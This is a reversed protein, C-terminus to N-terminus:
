KAAGDEKARGDGSMWWASRFAYRQRAERSLSLRRVDCRVMGIRDRIRVHSTTRRKRYVVYYGSM